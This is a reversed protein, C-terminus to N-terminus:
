PRHEVAIEYLYALIAEVDEDSFAIQPMEKHRSVKGEKLEEELERLPFKLYIDRMPPAIRLPSDGVAEIAHCRGCNKQLTIKGLAALDNGNDAYAASSHCLAIGVVVILVREIRVTRMTM